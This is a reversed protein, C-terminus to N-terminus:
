PVVVADDGADIFRRAGEARSGESGAQDVGVIMRAGACGKPATLM